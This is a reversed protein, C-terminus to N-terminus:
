EKYERLNEREMRTDYSIRMPNRFDFEVEKPIFNYLESSSNYLAQNKIFEMKKELNEDIMKEM